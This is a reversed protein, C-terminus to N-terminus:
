QKEKPELLRQYSERCLKLAQRLIDAAAAEGILFEGDERSLESGDRGAGSCQPTTVPPNPSSPTAPVPRSARKRMSDVLRKHTDNIAKIENEKEALNQLLRTQLEEETKRALAIAREQASRQAEKYQNFEQTVEAHAVAYGTKYGSRHTYWGGFLLAAVLTAAAAVRLVIPSLIMTGFM